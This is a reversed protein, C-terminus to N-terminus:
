RKIFIAGVLLVPILLGSIALAKFWNDFSEDSSVWMSVGGLWVMAILVTWM